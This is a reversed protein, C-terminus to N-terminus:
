KVTIKFRKTPPLKANLQRRVKWVEKIDSVRVKVQPSEEENESILVWEEENLRAVRKVSVDNRWVVVYILFETLDNWDAHPILSCLILDGTYLVPEMSNGGVEFWRWETGRWPIGPPMQFTELNEVYDTQDYSKSYGARAKYPVFPVFYDEGVIKGWRRQELYSPGLAERPVDNERILESGYLQNYAQTGLVEDLAKINSGKYKPFIGKGYNQLQKTSIDLMEALQLQTKPYAEMAAKLMAGVQENILAAQKNM